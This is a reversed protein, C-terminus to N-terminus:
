FATFVAFVDTVLKALLESFIVPPLVAITVFTSTDTGSTPECILSIVEPIDEEAAEIPLQKECIPAPASSKPLPTAAAAPPTLVSRSLTAFRTVLKEMIPVLRIDAAVPTPISIGSKGDSPSDM